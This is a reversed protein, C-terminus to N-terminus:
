AASSWGLGQDAYQATHVLNKAADIQRNLGLLSWIFLASQETKLRWQRAIRIQNKLLSRGLRLRLGRWDQQFPGVDAYIAMGWLGNDGTKRKTFWAALRGTKTGNPMTAPGPRFM